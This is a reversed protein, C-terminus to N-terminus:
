IHWMSLVTTPISKLAKGVYTTYIQDCIGASSDVLRNNLFDFTLHARSYIGEEELCSTKGGEIIGYM